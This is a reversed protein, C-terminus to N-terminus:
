LSLRGTKLFSTVLDMVTAQQMIFTHGFPVTAFDAMGELRASTVSVKGDNPRPIYLSCLPDCSHNGAIVGVPYSAPGLRRPLDDRGTGLSCGAPGNMLKFWTYNKWRDILESGHNPPALMVVKGLNKLPTHKLYYRVLIGGMSHTVFHVTHERGGTERACQQLGSQVATKALVDPPFKRSPYNINCTIYGNSKLHKAMARMSRSTRALGHLLIVCELNVSTRMIM